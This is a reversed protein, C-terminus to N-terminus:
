YSNYNQSKYHLVCSIVQILLQGSKSHPNRYAYLIWVVACLLAVIPIICGLVTGFSSRAINEFDDMKM